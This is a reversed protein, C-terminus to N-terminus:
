ILERARDIIDSIRSQLEIEEESPAADFESDTLRKPSMPLTWAMTTGTESSAEVWIHGGHREVIKRCIALGIGSGPYSGVGHLRQFVGFIRDFYQPDIGIGNDHLRFLWAEPGASADVHVVPPVGQRRFKIANGVLNQFLQALQGADAWVEPLAARSVQASSEAIAVQLDLLAEDFAAAASVPEPEKGRTTVRSYSLLDNTLRKMRTAGDVAYRMFERGEDDLVSDYRREILQLYSSVMRLPEQLDHSAVYAFQGLEENARMLRAAQRALAREVKLREEVEARLLRSAIGEARAAASASFLMGVALTVYMLLMVAGELIALGDSSRHWFPAALGHGLLGIFLAVQLTPGGVVQRIDPRRWLVVLALLYAMMTWTSSPRAVVSGAVSAGPFGDVLPGFLGTAVLVAAMGLMALTRWASDGRGATWTPPLWAAGAMLLTPLVGGAAWAARPVWTTAVDAGPLAGLLAFLAVLHGAHVIGTGLFATGLVLTATDRQGVHRALMIAGITLAGGFCLARLALVVDAAHALSQGALLAHGLLVAFLLVAPPALRLAAQAGLHDSWALRTTM